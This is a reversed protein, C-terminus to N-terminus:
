RNGNNDTVVVSTIKGNVGGSLGFRAGLKHNAQADGHCFHIKDITIRWKHGSPIRITRIATGQKGYQLDSGYICGDFSPIYDEYLATYTIDDVLNGNGDIGTSPEPLSWNGTARMDQHAPWSSVPPFVISDTSTGTVLTQSGLVEGFQTVFRVTVTPKENSYFTITVPDSSWVGYLNVIGNEESTLNVVGAEDAWKVTADPGPMDSWGLLM